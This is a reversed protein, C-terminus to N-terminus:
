RVRPRIGLEALLPQSYAVRGTLQTPPSSCLALASEAMLAVDELAFGDILDHHSAGPTAVNDWPALANVAIGHDHLEAALSNSLRDLGAKAMGYVSFGGKQVDDFPPGFAHNAARSTINLIWGGGRSKMSPVVLQMLEYPAWLQLEVMLDFRKKTFEELPLLFTAAANNVLIDVPGLQRESEAILHRRDSENALDCRVAVAEGGATRITAVTETLSGQHGSEPVLTRASAVVRAGEAALRCAIQAGIGRSAGTVVAVKGECRGVMGDRGERM